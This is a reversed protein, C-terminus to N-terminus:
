AERFTLTIKGTRIDQKPSLLLRYLRERQWNASLQPDRLPIEEQTVEFSEDFLIQLAAKEGKLLAKGAAIQAKQATLLPLTIKAARPLAINDTLRIERRERDLTLAREYKAGEGLGSLDYAGAMDCFFTAQRGDDSFRTGAAAYGRGNKQDLGGIIATNHYRSQMTWIDYREESFTKRSYTEVGADVIFPEGGAYLIYNGIDNHNHSEANHGGKVAMYLGTGDAKERACAVEIGGFWHSLPRNLRPAASVPHRYELTNKLRRYVGDYGATYPALGCRSATLEAAFASLAEDGLYRATRSLLGADARVRCAADAFNIYYENEIRAQMIYSAISGILKEGWVNVHGSSAAYLLELADLLSGGARNFYGPGEDCGGDASYGDMFRELGNAALLLWEQRRGADEENLLVVAILSSWIWPTWNNLAEGKICGSWFMSPIREFNDLIRRKIESTVREGIAPLDGFREGLLVMCWSLLSATEASFLDIYSNALAPTPLPHVKGDGLPNQYQHAPIVWSTEECIAWIHDIINPLFRGDDWILECMMLKYLNVRRGFYAEGHSKREGTTYYQMQLEATIPAPTCKLLADEMGAFYDKAEQDLSRWAARDAVTPLPRFANKSAFAGEQLAAKVSQTLFQIM